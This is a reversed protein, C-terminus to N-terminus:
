HLPDAPDPPLAAGPAAPVPPRAPMPDNVRRGPARGATKALRRLRCRVATDALDNLGTALAVAETEFLGRQTEDAFILVGGTRRDIVKWAPGDPVALYRRCGPLTM